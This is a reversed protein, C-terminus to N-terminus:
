KVGEALDLTVIVRAVQADAEKPGVEASVTEIAVGRFVLATKITEARQEALKRNQAENGKAEVTVAIRTKRVARANDSLTRALGAIGPESAPALDKAGPKFALPPTVALESGSRAVDRVQAPIEFVIATASRFLREADRAGTTARAYAGDVRAVKAAIFAERAARAADVPCGRAECTRRAAEADRLAADSEALQAKEADTAPAPPEHGKRPRELAATFREQAAVALEKAASPRRSALARRSATLMARAEVVRVPDREEGKDHDCLTSLEGAVTVETSADARARGDDGSLDDPPPSALKGLIAIAANAAREADVFRRKQWLDKAQALHGDAQAFRPKALPSERMADERSALARFIATYAGRYSPTTAELAALSAAQKALHEDARAAASGIPPDLVDQTETYLDKAERATRAADVFDEKAYALNATKLAVDGRELALSQAGRARAEDRAREADKIAALAADWARGNPRAPEGALTALAARSREALTGAELCAREALKREATTLDALAARRPAEKKPDTGSGLRRDLDRAGAIRARATDCGGDRSAGRFAETARKAQAKADVYSKGAYAREALVLLEAGRTKGQGDLTRDKEVRAEALADDADDKLANGAPAAAAPTAVGAKVRVLVAYARTALENAEAYSHRAYWTDGNQLLAQGQVYGPDERNQAQVRSLEIQAKQLAAAAKKRLAEEDAERKTMAAPTQPAFRPDCVRLREEARLSFEYAREYDGADYRRQGLELIAEFERFPAACSQDRLQGLLEGRRLGLAVLSREALVRFSGGERDGGGGSAADFISRAENASARARDWAESAEARRADRLAEEGDTMRSPRAGARAAADRASEARAIAEKAGTRGGAERGEERSDKRPAGGKELQGLMREAQDRESFNKAIELKQVAQRALLTAQETEGREAAERARRSLERAEAVLRPRGAAVTKTEHRDLMADAEGVAPPVQAPTCAATASVLALTTVFPHWPARKM